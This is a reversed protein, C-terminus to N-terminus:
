VLAPEKLNALLSLGSCLLALAGAALFVLHSGGGLLQGMWGTLYPSAFYGVNVITLVVATAGPLRDASACRAFGLMLCPAYLGMALAAGLGLILAGPVSVWIGGILYGAALLGLAWAMTFSGTYRQLVGFSASVVGAAVSAVATIIGTLVSDGLGNQEVYLSTHTNVVYYLAAFAFGVASLRVMAGWDYWSETHIAATGGQAKTRPLFALGLALPVMVMLFCLYVNYWQGTALVGGMLTSAVRGLQLLGTVVGMVTNREQGEFSGSVLLPFVTSQMGYAVGMVASCGILVPLQDHFLYSSLGGALFVTLAGLSLTRRSFWRELLPEALIGAIGTLNPLTLLLLVTNESYDTFYAVMGSVAVSPVMYLLNVFCIAGIAMKIGLKNNM